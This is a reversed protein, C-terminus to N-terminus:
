TTREKLPRVRLTAGRASVVTVETGAPVPPDDADASWSESEVRVRGHPALDTEAVGRQGVLTELGMAVPEKRSRVLARLVIAVFAAVTVAMAAILWPSVQVAPLAPSPVGVPQYLLLSGLVFGALGGVALLGIGESILDVVVLIVGLAVLVLGAWSVPLSGFAVFALVMSTVGVLGPFLGGPNYLEAVLGILGVMFLLYAVNPDTIAQVIREPVTMPRELLDLGATALVVEERATTVTWGDIEALLTALDPAVLDIVGEALAERASSSASELVAREAWAGNRDRVEALSRAFAAADAAVKEAVTPDMQGGVGVPHAAGISTGPAMAAVHASLTLFMGASAARAGSPAVYVVVPVPADLVAATMDRMSSELGGPTDLRIVVVPAEAEGAARLERQLYRSSTPGMVGDVALVRGAPAEARAPAALLLSLLTAALMRALLAGPSRRSPTRTRM